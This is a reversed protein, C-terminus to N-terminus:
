ISWRAFIGAPLITGSSSEIALEGDEIAGGFKDQLHDLNQKYALSSYGAAYGNILVFLPKKSLLKFVDALFSLFNEEIRWIEGKAGRGFSPPDMVIADYKNGRRIERKVFEHADDLIFRIKSDKLGSIEANKKAMGISPKSADVHVVEAGAQAMALTAGGTYGFLNLANIPRDVKKIKEGMWGWNLLQEPFVGTHKFSTPSILFSVGGLIINWEKPLNKSVKWNGKGDKRVFSADAKQWESLSLKKHWLAQPDPRRLVYAGYRELKEGEGSDLLEYDKQPKTIQIM